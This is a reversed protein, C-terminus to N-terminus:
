GAFVGRLMEALGLMWHHTRNHGSLSPGPAVQVFDATFERWGKGCDFFLGLVM